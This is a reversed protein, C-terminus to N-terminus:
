ASKFAQALESDKTSALGNAKLATSAASLSRGDTILMKSPLTKFEPGKPFRRADVRTVKFCLSPDEAFLTNAKGMITIFDGGIDEPLGISALRLAAKADFVSPTLGAPYDPADTAESKQERHVDLLAQALTLDPFIANEPYVLLTRLHPRSQIFEAFVNLRGAARSHFVSVGVPQLAEAIRSGIVEDHYLVHYEASTDFASKLRRFLLSIVAAGQVRELYPVTYTSAFQPALYVVIAKDPM